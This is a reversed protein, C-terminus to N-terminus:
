FEWASNIMLTNFYRVNQQNFVLADSDYNLSLLVDKSIRHAIEAGFDLVSTMGGLTSSSNEGLLKATVGAGVKSTTADSLAAAYELGGRLGWLSSGAAIDNRLVLGRVGFVSALNGGWFDPALPSKYNVQADLKNERTDQARLLGGSPMLYSVDYFSGEGIFELSRGAELPNDYIIKGGYTVNSNAIASQEQLQGVLPGVRVQPKHDLFATNKAAAKHEKAYQPWTKIFSTTKILAVVVEYRKVPVNLKFAGAPVNDLVRTKIAEVLEADDAEISPNLKAAKALIIAFQGVPVSREPMFYGGRYCPLVRYQFATRVVAPFSESKQPVDKITASLVKVEKSILANKELFDLYGSLMQALNLRTVDKDAYKLWWGDVEYSAASLMYPYAWHNAPLNTVKEACIGVSQFLFLFGILLFYKKV